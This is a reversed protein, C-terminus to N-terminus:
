RDFVRAAAGDDLRLSALEQKLDDTMPSRERAAGGGGGFHRLKDSDRVVYVARIMDGEIEFAAIPARSPDLWIAGLAEVRKWFRTLTQAAAIGM